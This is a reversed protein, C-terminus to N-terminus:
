TRTRCVVCVPVTSYLLRKNGNRDSLVSDWVTMIKGVNENQLCAVVSLLWERNMGSACRNSEGGRAAAQMAVRVTDSRVEKERKEEEGGKKQGAGGDADFAGDETWASSKSRDAKTFM